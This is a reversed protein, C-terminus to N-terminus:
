KARGTLKRILMEKLGGFTGNTMILLVDGSTIYRIKEDLDGELNKLAAADVGRKALEKCILDPDLRLDPPISDRRHVPGLVACDALSLAEILEPQLYNRTMTNSRSEFFAYLRRGPERSRVAKITAAIATPHHAFDDYIVVGGGEFVKDLRRRVGKFSALAAGVGEPSAGLQLAMASAAAANALNHAGGKELSIEVREGAPGKLMARHASDDAALRWDAEAQFGFSAIRGRSGAAVERAVADEARFLLLGESPLLSVLRRFATKIEELDSYIDSHDFEIANIIAFRSCYHLFKPRKDYWVTDYEDGEIVFHKGVGAHCSSPLDYPEGGILWGPELENARLIHALMATTTTKGHTGAVVVSEKGQLYLWRVVEPLSIIPLNLNLAAELEANGRSVANGVVVLASSPLNSPAYGHLIRVPSAALIDGMPPYFQADSGSVGYGRRALDVAVSAM